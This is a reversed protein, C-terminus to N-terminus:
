RMPVHGYYGYPWPGYHPMGFTSGSNASIVILLTFLAIFGVIAVGAWLRKDTLLYRWRITEIWEIPHYTRM